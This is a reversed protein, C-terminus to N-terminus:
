EVQIPVPQSTYQEGSLTTYYAILKYKDGPIFSVRWQSIDMNYTISEEPHLTKIVFAPQFKDYNHREHLSKSIMFMGRDKSQFEFEFLIGDGTSDVDITNESDINTLTIKLPLTGDEKSANSVKVKVDINAKQHPKQTPNDLIQVPISQSSIRKGDLGNYYVVLQYQDAPLNRVYWQSIDQKFSISEGPTLAKRPTQRLPHDGYIYIAKDYLAESIIFTGYKKSKLEFEFVSESDVQILEKGSQPNTLTIEVQLPGRVSITSATIKAKIDLLSMAKTDGFCFSSSLIVINISILFQLFILARKTLSISLNITKATMIMERM